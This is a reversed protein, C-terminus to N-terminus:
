RNLCYCQNEPDVEYNFAYNPLVYRNTTIKEHKVTGNFKLSLTRCLDNVFLKITSPILSQFPPNLDGPTSQDLRNCTDKKWYNLKTEGDYSVLRGYTALDNVGNRIKFEKSVTNNRDFFFGFREPVKLGIEAASQLLKDPYGDFMLSNVTSNVILQVNEMKVLATLYELM